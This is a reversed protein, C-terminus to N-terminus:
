LRFVSHISPDTPGTVQAWSFSSGDRGRGAKKGMIVTADEAFFRVWDDNKAPDDSVQYFNSIFDKISAEIDGNPYVPSYNPEM